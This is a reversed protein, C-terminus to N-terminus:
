QAVALSRPNRVAASIIDVVATDQPLVRALSIAQAKRIQQLRRFQSSISALKTELREKDDNLAALRKQRAERQAPKPATLVLQALEQQVARLQRVSFGGRGFRWRGDESPLTRTVLGRTQWVYQYADGRDAESLRRLVSLLPDCKVNIAQVFDL